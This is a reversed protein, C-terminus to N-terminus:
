RSDGSPQVVQRIRPEVPFALSGGRPLLGIANALRRLKEDTALVKAQDMTVGILYVHEDIWYHCIAGREVDLVTRILIGGDLRRLYVDLRSVIWDLQRGALEYKSRLQGRGLRRFFRNLDPSELADLHFRCRGNVYYGVFHLDDPHVYGRCLTVVEEDAPEFSQFKVVLSAHTPEDFEHAERIQTRGHTAFVLDAGRLQVFIAYAAVSVILLGLSTVSVAFVDAAATVVASLGTTVVGLGALLISFELLLQLRRAFRRLALLLLCVAIVGGLVAAARAPNYPAGRAHSILLEAGTPLVALVIFAALARLSWQLRRLETARGVLDRHLNTRGSMAVSRTTVLPIDEVLEEVLEEVLRPIDHEIQDHRIRRALCGALGAIDPPLQEAKPLSTDDLLVPVVRCGRRLATAIEHRVWDDPEDLRRRGDTEATLWRPGIVVLLVMCQALQQDLMRNVDDGGRLSDFDRFVRSAGLREVLSRYLLVASYADDRTRYSIFVGGESV